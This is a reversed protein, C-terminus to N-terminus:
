HGVGLDKMRGRERERGGGGEGEEGVADADVHDYWVPHGDRDEGFWGGPLYKKLVQARVLCFSCCYKYTCLCYYQTEERGGERREEREGEWPLGSLGLSLSMIFCLVSKLVCKAVLKINFSNRQGLFM